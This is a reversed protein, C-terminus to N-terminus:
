LGEAAEEIYTLDINDPDDYGNEHPYTYRSVFEIDSMFDSLLEGKQIVTLADKIKKKAEDMNEAIVTYADDVMMSATSQVRFAFEKM